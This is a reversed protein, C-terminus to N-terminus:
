ARVMASRPASACGNHNGTCAPAQPVGGPVPARGRKLVDVVPASVM